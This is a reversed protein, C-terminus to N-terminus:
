LMSDLKSMDVKFNQMVVGHKDLIVKHPIYKLGYEAPPRGCLSIASTINKEKCFKDADAKGALNVLLFTVKGKYKPDNAMRDIQSAFFLVHIAIM